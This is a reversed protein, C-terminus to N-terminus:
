IIKSFHYFTTLKANRRRLFVSLNNKKQWNKRIKERVDLISEMSTFEIKLDM